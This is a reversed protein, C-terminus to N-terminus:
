YESVKVGEANYLAAPDGANNWIYSGTWELYYPPNNIANRGSTIHVTSGAKLVYNAPFDYTQNGEISVLKWGTMNVDQSGNNRIKVVETDLNVSTITVDAPTPEPDPEPEGDGGGSYPSGNIDVNCGNFEAIIDGTEYTSYIAAGANTLNQIVESHPHGYSNEGYSLIAASPNVADVFAASTGTNSGHHSTRLVTSQVDFTQAIKSEIEHDADGTLLVSSCGNTARLVISADNNESANEDSHLVRVQVNADLDIIQSTKAVEFPINKQDVLNLYDLYTQSTHAKGSDLVKKVPIENLVDLLGGIHDADPHTAVVLDISDVGAQKLYSVVKEGASQRGADILITKGNSLTLLTSDGQGVDLFHATFSTNPTDKKFQDNLARALFASFQDRTVDQNPRFTGDTYGQTIGEALIKAISDAAAMSPSVDNFSTDAKETLEFARAIFIAMEGRTVIQDPRFTGDTFGYIIKQEVASQIYGSAFSSSGVDEFSTERKEGDLGVSRGIMAAAAARTVPKDPAFTGDNFGNIIMQDSLYTIEDFFTHTTPVDRFAKASASTPPISGVVLVVLLLLAFLKKM